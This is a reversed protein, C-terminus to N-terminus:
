EGREAKTPLYEDDDWYGEGRIFMKQCVEEVWWKWLKEKMKDKRGIPRNTM